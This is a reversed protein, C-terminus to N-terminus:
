LGAVVDVMYTKRGPLKKGPADWGGLFVDGAGAVRTHSPVETYGVEPRCVDRRMVLELRSGRALMEERRKAGYEPDAYWAHHFPHILPAHHLVKTTLWALHDAGAQNQSVCKSQSQSQSQDATREARGLCPRTMPLSHQADAMLGPRARDGAVPGDGGASVSAPIEGKDESSDSPSTTPGMYRGCPLLPASPMTQVGAEVNEADQRAVVNALVRAEVAPSVPAIEAAAADYAVWTFPLDCMSAHSSVHTHVDERSPLLSSVDASRSRSEHQHYHASSNRNPADKTKTTQPIKHPSIGPLKPGDLALSPSPHVHAAAIPAPTYPHTNLQQQPPPHSSHRNDAYPRLAEIPLIDVRIPDEHFRTRISPPSTANDLASDPVTPPCQAYKTYDSLHACEPAELLMHMVEKIPQGIWRRPWWGTWWGMHGGLSTSALVINPNISHAAEAQTKTQTTNPADQAIRAKGSSPKAPLDLGMVGKISDVLDFPVVPDDRSHISLLPRRVGHIARASSAAAYYDEARVFPFEGYPKHHGGLISTSTEDVFRMTRPMRGPISVARYRIGSSSASPLIDAASPGGHVLTAERRRFRNWAHSARRLAHLFSRSLSREDSVDAGGPRGHSPSTLHRDSAVGVSAPQHKVLKAIAKAVQPDLSLTDANRMVVRCLNSALTRTYLETNLGLRLRSSSTAHPGEAMEYGRSLDFPTGLILAGRLPTDDGEEGLYKAMINAGM